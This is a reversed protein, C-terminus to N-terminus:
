KAAAAAADEWELEQKLRRVFPDDDFSPETAAARRPRDFRVSNNVWTAWAQQWDTYRSGKARHHAEFSERQSAFEDESWGQAIKAAQTDPGFPKPEWDDPIRHKKDGLPVVPPNKEKSEERLELSSPDSSPTSLGVRSPTKKGNTQQQKTRQGKQGFQVAAVHAVEDKVMGRSFITGDETRSFVQHEELEEIGSIIEAIQLGTLVSLERDRPQRGNVVLHGYPEAEHMLCILEVWVGRAAACCLRLGHENRWRQPSFKMWPRAMM